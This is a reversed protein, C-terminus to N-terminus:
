YDIDLGAMAEERARASPLSYRRTTELRRHGALEAVLVLDRGQRVLTTLCTHRLVHASLRLGADRGIRRLALDLSRTSLRRCGRGLFLASSDTGLVEREELWGALARRAPANLPIERYSAGKGHRIIVQGKRASMPVDDVDLAASEALRIGTHFFLLALARDRASSCREVARLFRRMEEEELARPAQQTTQARAVEPRRGGLFRFFHDVAALTQNLSSPGLRRVKLLHTRYDRVAYLRANADALPDGYVDLFEDAVFRLFYRVQRRYALRTNQALPQIELWGEYTNLLTELAEWPVAM